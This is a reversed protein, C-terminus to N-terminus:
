FNEMRFRFGVRQASARVLIGLTYPGCYFVHVRKLPHKKSVADFIQNWDPRGFRTKSRLGTLADAAGQRRSLEMGINLLGTVPNIKADTMHINLDLMRLNRKELQELLDAFWRFTEQGRYVWHFYVKELNMPLGREKRLIISELISAFPTVGIGAGILVAYKAKYIRTSPTGYPGHIRAPVRRQTKPLGKMVSHLRNTWNGLTRVHVDVTDEREPASSITFPHWGFRSIRPVKLFLYEGAKFKFGQPRHLKLHTVGTDHTVAEEIFTQRHKIFRRVLLDLFFGAVPIATWRAFSQVHLMAAPFWIWYLLHSGSFLGYFKTRRIFGLAFFWIFLFAVMTILGTLGAWTYLLNGVVGAQLTSYNMLHAGTHVLAFFFMVRGVWKHIEVNEDVPVFAFLFSKRIWTLFTRMMPILILMGNFNLCAGGGRAIQIYINAGAERYRMFADGFFWLNAGVYAIVLLARWAHFPVTVFLYRLVTAFGRHRVDVRHAPAAGFWVSVSDLMAGRVASDTSLLSRFAAFDISRKGTKKLLADETAQRAAPSVKLRSHRLGAKFLEDLENKSIKGDGDADHIDFIFRLKKTDNGLIVQSVSELFDTESLRGDGDADLVRFLNGALYSDRIKLFAKLKQKTLYRSSSKQASVHEGFRRRVTNLFEQDEASLIPRKKRRDASSKAPSKTSTATPM